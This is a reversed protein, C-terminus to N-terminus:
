IKTHELYNQAEIHLRILARGPACFVLIFLPVTILFFLLPALAFKAAFDTCQM